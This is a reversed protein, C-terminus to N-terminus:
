SGPISIQPASFKSIDNLTLIIIIDITTVTNEKGVAKSIFSVSYIIDVHNEWCINKKSGCYSSETRRTMHTNFVGRGGEGRGGGVVM